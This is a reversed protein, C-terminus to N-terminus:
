TLFQPYFHINILRTNPYQTSGTRNILVTLINIGLFAEHKANELFLMGLEYIENVDSNILEFHSIYLTSVYLCKGNVGSINHKHVHPLWSAHIYCLFDAVLLDSPVLWSHPVHEM